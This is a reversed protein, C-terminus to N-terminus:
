QFKIRYGAALKSLQLVIPVREQFNTCQCGKKKTPQMTVIIEKSQHNVSVAKVCECQEHCPMLYWAIALTYQNFDVLCSSSRMVKQYTITDNILITSDWNVIIVGISDNKIYWAERDVNCYLQQPSCQVEPKCAWLSMGLIIGYRWM